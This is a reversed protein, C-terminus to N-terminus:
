LAQPYARGAKPFPEVDPAIRQGCANVAGIGAGEKILFGDYVPKGNQLTALKAFARAYTHTESATHDTAFIYRVNGQAFGPNGRLAVIVLCLHERVLAFALIMSCSALTAQERARRILEDYAARGDGPVATEEGM